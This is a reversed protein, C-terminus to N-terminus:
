NHMLQARLSMSGKTAGAITGITTDSSYDKTYYEELDEKYEKLCHLWFAQKGMEIADNLSQEKSKANEYTAKLNDLAEKEVKQQFSFHGNDKWTRIKEILEDIQAQRIKTPTAKQLKEKTALDSQLKILGAFNKEYEAKAEDYKAKLQKSNILNTMKKIHNKKIYIYEDKHKLWFEYDTTYKITKTKNNKSQTKM